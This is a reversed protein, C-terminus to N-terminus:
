YTVTFIVFIKYVGGTMYSFNEINSLFLKKNELKYIRFYKNNKIKNFIFYNKISKEPWSKVNSFKIFV